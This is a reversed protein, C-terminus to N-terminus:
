KITMQFESFTMTDTTGVGSIMLQVTDDQEVAVPFVGVFNRATSQVTGTIEVATPAAGNISVNFDYDQTGGAKVIRFNALMELSADDFGVYKFVGHDVDILKFTETTVSSAFATSLDIQQYTGDAVATTDSDPDLEQGQWSQHVTAPRALM